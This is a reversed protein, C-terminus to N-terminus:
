DDDGRLNAKWIKMFTAREECTAREFLRQTAALVYTPCNKFENKAKGRIRDFEERMRTNTYNTLIDIDNHTATVIVGLM